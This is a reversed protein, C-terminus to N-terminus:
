RRMWYIINSLFNEWAKVTAPRAKNLRAITLELYVIRLLSWIWFFMTFINPSDWHKTIAKKAFMFGAFLMKFQMQKLAMDPTDNHIYLGPNLIYFIYFIFFFKFTYCVICPNVRTWFNVTNPCNWLMHLFPGPKFYSAQLKM